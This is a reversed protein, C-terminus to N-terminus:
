TVLDKLFDESMRLLTEKRLLLLLNWNNLLRNHSAWYLSVKLLSSYTSLLLLSNVWKYRQWIICRFLLHLKLLFLFICVIQLLLHCHLLKVRAPLFSSSCALRHRLLRRWYLLLLLYILLLKLHRKYLLLKVFKLLLLKLGEWIFHRLKINGWLAILHLRLKLVNLGDIKNRVLLVLLKARWRWLHNRWKLLKALLIILLDM